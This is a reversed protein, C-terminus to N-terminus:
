GINLLTTLVGLWRQLEAHKNYFERRKRESKILRDTDLQKTYTLFNVVLEAVKHALQAQTPQAPLGIQEHSQLYFQLAERESDTEPIPAIVRDDAYGAADAFYTAAASLYSLIRDFRGDFNDNKGIDLEAQLTSIEASALNMQESALTTIKVSDDNGYSLEALSPRPRLVFAAIAGILLARKACDRPARDACM